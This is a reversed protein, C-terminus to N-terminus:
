ITWVFWRHYYFFLRRIGDESWENLGIGRNQFHKTVQDLSIQVCPIDKGVLQGLVHACDAYSRNDGVLEYRARNHLHPNLIVKAAVEGFDELALLGQLNHPAYPVTVEPSSSSLIAQIPINQM